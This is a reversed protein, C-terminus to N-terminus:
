AVGRCDIGKKSSTFFHCSIKIRASLFPKVPYSGCPSHIRIITPVKIPIDSMEKWFHRVTNFYILDASNFIPKMREIFSKVAENEDKCFANLWNKGDFVDPDIKGLVEPVTILSMKFNEYELVKILNRILESHHHLEVVVVHILPKDYKTQLVDRKAM